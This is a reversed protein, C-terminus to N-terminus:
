FDKDLVGTRLVGLKSLRKNINQISQTEIGKLELLQPITLDRYKPSKKRNSPLKSQITIFESIKEKALNSVKVDGM